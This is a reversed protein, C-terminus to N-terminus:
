RAGAKRRRLITRAVATLWNWNIALHLAALIMAFDSFRDHVRRWGFNAAMDVAEKGTLAPVAQQSIRIGSFIVATSCAFLCLDLFYNVRTRNTAGGILRRTVSEIWNWSLLVHVAIIAAVALGLWEHVILGTFPVTELACVAILLTVDLGFVVRLRSPM